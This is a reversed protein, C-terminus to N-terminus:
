CLIKQVEENQCILPVLDNLHKNWFDTLVTTRHKAICLSYVNAGSPAMDNREISVLLDEKGHFIREALKLWFFGLNKMLYLFEFNIKISKEVILFNRVSKLTPKLLHLRGYFQAGLQCSVLELKRLSKCGALFDFLLQHDVKQAALLERIEPFLTTFDVPMRGGFAEITKQFNRLVLRIRVPHSMRKYHDVFQNLSTENIEFSGPISRGNPGFFWFGNDYLSGSVIFELSKRKKLTMQDRLMELSQVDASDWPLAKIRKLKPHSEFLNSPSEIKELSLDELNNCKEFTKDLLFCEISKISEPYLISISRPPFHRNHFSIFELKPTNLVIPTKFHTRLILVKLHEHELVGLELAVKYFVLENLQHLSKFWGIARKTISLYCHNGDPSHFELKKINKLFCFDHFEIEYSVARSVYPDFARRSRIKVKDLDSVAKQKPYVWFRNTPYHSQHYICLKKEGNEILVKWRKCVSMMRIREFVSLFKFIEKLALCPLDNLGQIPNSM